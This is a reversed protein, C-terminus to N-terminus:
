FRLALVSVGRPGKLTGLSLAHWQSHEATASVGIQKSFVVEDGNHSTKRWWSHKGGWLSALIVLDEVGKRYFWLWTGLILRRSARELSQLCVVFRLCFNTHQDCAGGTWLTPQSSATPGCCWICAPLPLLTLWPEFYSTILLAPNRAFCAGLICPWSYCMCFCLKVKTTSSVLSCNENTLDFFLSFWNLLLTKKIFM